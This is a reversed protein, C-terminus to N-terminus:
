CHDNDLTRAKTPLPAKVQSYNASAPHSHARLVWREHGPTVPHNGHLTDTDFIVITGRPTEVDMPGLFEFQDDLPLDEATYGATELMRRRYTGLHQSRPVIRLGGNKPDVDTLSLWIKLARIRDFHIHTVPAVSPRDRTIYAARMISSGSGLYRRAIESFLPKQLFRHIQPLLESVVEPFFRVAVGPSGRRYPVPTLDTGGSEVAGRAERFMESLLHQNVAAQCTAWGFRGLRDLWADSMSLEDIPVEESHRTMM